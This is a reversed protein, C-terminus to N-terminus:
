KYMTYCHGDKYAAKFNETIFLFAKELKRCNCFLHQACLFGIWYVFILVQDHIIYVRKDYALSKKILLFNHRTACSVKIGGASEERIQVSDKVRDAPPVLLDNLDDHYLQSVGCQYYLHPVFRSFMIYVCM